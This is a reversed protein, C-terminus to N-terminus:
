SRKFGTMGRMWATARAISDELTVDPMQDVQSQLNAEFPLLDGMFSTVKAVAGEAGSSIRALGKNLTSDKWQQLSVRRLGAAWKGSSVSQQVGQLYKDPNEAAREMPSETVANVGIRIDETSGQLRRKWKEAAQQANVKIAM